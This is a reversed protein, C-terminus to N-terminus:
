CIYNFNFTEQVLFSKKVKFAPTQLLTVTGAAPGEPQLHASVKLMSTGETLGPRPLGSDGAWNVEAKFGKGTEGLSGFIYKEVMTPAVFSFHNYFVASPSWSGRRPPGVAGSSRGDWTKPEEM